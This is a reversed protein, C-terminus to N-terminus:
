KGILKFSKNKAVYGIISIINLTIFILLMPYLPSLYATHITFFSTTEILSLIVFRTLISLLIFLTIFYIDQNIKKIRITLFIFIIASIISAFNGLTEYIDGINNLVSIKNDNIKGAINKKNNNKKSANKEEGINELHLFLKKDRSISNISGDLPLKEKLGSGVILLFCSEMCKTSIAFRSRKANEFDNKQNHFYNFIDPSESYRINYEEIEDNENIISLVINESPSFAWGHINMRDGGSEDNPPKIFGIPENTLKSFFSLSDNNGDSLSVTASLGKFNTLYIFSKKLSSFFLKVIERNIPDLMTDRKKYCDLEKRECAINIEDAIQKYFSMTEKGNNKKHYGADRVADRFAWMFWGGKIEKEDKIGLGASSNRIWGLGTDGELSPELKKFSPSIQYIKARKKKSVPVFRQWNDDKVRTLAGYAELFESKKFEVTAFIGYKKYNIFSVTLISVYLFIFPLFLSVMKIKWKKEKEIWIKFAALLLTCILFPLIWVGEERTLWFFSLSIGLGTVWSLINKLNRKRRILIGISFAIVMLSIAPYIGERIIRTMIGQSFSVPNFLIIVYMSLLYIYNRVVPRISIILIICAMIYLFHQSLLLPLGFLFNIAIWVPYGIGKALTLNNYNGLWDSELLDSAIKVFLADDHMAGPYATIDQGNVLFLKILTLVALAMWFFLPFGFLTERKKELIKKLMIIIKKARNM